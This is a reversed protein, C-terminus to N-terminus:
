KRPPQLFFCRNTWDDGGRLRWVECPSRAMGGIDNQAISEEDVFIVGGHDIGQEGWSRLLAPITRRDFSLLRLKQRAAERLDEGDPVGVFHGDMWDFLTAIQLGRCLKRAAVAVEPSIHEDALIHLMAIEQKQFRGRV